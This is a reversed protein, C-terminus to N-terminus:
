VCRSTYVLCPSIRDVKLEEFGDLGEERVLPLIAIDYFPFGLWARILARRM